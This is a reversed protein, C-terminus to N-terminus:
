TGGAPRPGGGGGRVQRGDSFLVVAQVPMSRLEDLASRVAFAIDATGRSSTDLLLRRVPRGGTGFLPLPAVAQGGIAFGYVPVGQPLNALLGGGPRTLAQEVLELRSQSALMQCTKRVEPD